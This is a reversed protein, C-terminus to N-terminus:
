HCCPSWGRNPRSTATSSDLPDEPDGAALGLRAAEAAQARGQALDLRAVQDARAAASISASRPSRAGICRTPCARRRRPRQWRRRRAGCGAALGGDQQRRGAGGEVLERVELRPAVSEACQGAGLRTACSRRAGCRGSATQCSTTSRRGSWAPRRRADQRQDARHEDEGGARGHALPDVPRLHVEDWADSTGAARWGGAARRRAGPGRPRAAGPRRAHVGDEADKQAERQQESGLHLTGLAPQRDHAQRQLGALEDLRRHRDQHGVEQRAPGAGRAMGAAAPATTGTRATSTRWGSTPM